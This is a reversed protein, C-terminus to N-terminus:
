RLPDSGLLGLAIDRASDCLTQESCLASADLWKVETADDGAVGSGHIRRCLVVVVVYHYALRGRDDYHLQDIATLVRLPEAEIGSEERLERVAAALLEEGPEIRGGPLALMGLNPPKGRRVMLVRGEEVVAASVAPCPMPRAAQAATSM